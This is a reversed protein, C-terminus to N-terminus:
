HSTVNAIGCVNFTYLYLSQLHATCINSKKTDEASDYELDFAEIFSKAYRLFPSDYKWAMLERVTKVCGNAHHANLERRVKKLSVVSSAMNPSFVLAAISRAVSEDKAIALEYQKVREYYLEQAKLETQTTRAATVAATTATIVTHVTRSSNFKDHKVKM